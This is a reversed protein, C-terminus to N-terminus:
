TGSTGLPATALKAYIPGEPTLRSAFTTVRRADLAGATWLDFPRTLAAFDLEGAEASKVRAITVHPSFRADSPPYGASGTATVVARQLERHAALGEGELGVWAVRPRGSTPFTGFGRVELEFRPLTAVGREVARCVSSLVADLVDGLFALTLHLNEAPTWQFGRVKPALHGQVKAIRQRVGEPLELGVFTRTKGAM